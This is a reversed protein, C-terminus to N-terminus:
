DVQHCIPTETSILVDGSRSFASRGSTLSLKGSSGAITGTDLEATALNVTGSENAIQSRLILSLSGGKSASSAGGQINVSGGNGTDQCSSLM